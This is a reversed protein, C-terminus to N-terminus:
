SQHRCGLITEMYSEDLSVLRSVCLTMLMGKAKALDKIEILNGNEYATSTEEALAIMMSGYTHALIVSAPWISHLKFSQDIIHMRGGMKGEIVSVACLRTM